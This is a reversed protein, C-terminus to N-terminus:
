TPFFFLNASLVVSSWRALLSVSLPYPGLVCSTMWGLRTGILYASYAAPLRQAADLGDGM